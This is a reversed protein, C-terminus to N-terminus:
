RKGMPPPWPNVREVGAAKVWMPHHVPCLHRDMGIERAHDDCLPLDCTKGRGMPWDCLNDGVAGCTPESCHEGLDGCIFVEGGDIFNSQERVVEEPWLDPHEPHGQGKGPRRTKWGHRYGAQEKAEWMTMPGMKERYCPM